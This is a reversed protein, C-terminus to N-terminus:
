PQLPAGQVLVTVRARPRIGGANECQFELTNEGPGLVPVNGELTVEQLKEGKIGYVVAPGTGNYELYQGSEIEVPFRMSVEGTKLSPRIIKGKVLPLVRPASLVCSSEKGPPLDNYWFSLSSVENFDVFERYIGYAGSYPWQHDEIRDSDPEVLEFYRWGTFDLKIYHDGFGRYVTHEPSRLQVNLLAAQGDGKVWLGVGPTGAWNKPPEFSREVQSWAGPAEARQSSARYRLWPGAGDPAGEPLDEASFSATVGEATHIVPATGQFDDAVAGEPVGFPQVMMLAEIRVRLPQAEFRNNLTWRSANEELGSVKHKLVDVPAFKAEGQSGHTLTFCARPERLRAQISEPVSHAHRLTEYERFIPALRQFAPTKTITDPNVGMLSFGMGNALGKAMLYEIDEPFTPEIQTVWPGEEWTKVAWWGLNMPLYTNWMSQNSTVHVDVYRKHDRLCADWAGMRARVYWLHHHFTSMEFLAPRKLRKAIEFVFKSGYYWGWEGGALVGEGDLADQYIMDFGCDNFTDATNAAVEALLTSEAGPTFLGFCERLHHVKAGRPHASVKTGCAGRKCEVFGYPETKRVQKYEILEDEIQLTASNQVFFGTLASMKETSELVPTETAEASLDSALTFEADKGLRPDPVPTIYPSDKAIFFAYTHLGASIGAAHLKDIVAKVSERGKPFLKPNPTFDGFRLSTGTHFDIQNMGLSQVCAIWSDVTEETLTGFDFLYSGRNIEADWAWPGGIDSQPVDPGAERVVVKLLERMRASPCAAIAVKAGKFGFRAYAHAEIRNAPGPLAPVNTELNLALATCAFADEPTPTLTLPVDLFVLETVGKGELSLVEATFYEGHGQIELVARADAGFVLTIRGNELQASTGPKWAGEQLIRAFPQTAAPSRFDTGSVRDAFRHTVADAGFVWTLHSTEITFEPTPAGGIGACLILGILMGM